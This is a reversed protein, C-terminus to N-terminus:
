GATISVKEYYVMNGCVLCHRGLLLPIITEDPISSIGDLFKGKWVGFTGQGPYEYCV